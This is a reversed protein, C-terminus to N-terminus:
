NSGTTRDHVVPLLWPGSRPQAYWAHALLPYPLVFDGERIETMEADSRLMRRLPDEAVARQTGRLLESDLRSKPVTGECLVRVRAADYPRRPVERDVNHNDRSKLLSLLAGASSYPQGLTRIQSSLEELVRRQLVTESVDGCHSFPRLECRARSSALANLCRAVENLQLEEGQRHRGARTLRSQPKLRAKVELRSQLRRGLGFRQENLRMDKPKALRPKLCGAKQRRYTLSLCLM